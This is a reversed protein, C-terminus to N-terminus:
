PVHFTAIQLSIKTKRRTRTSPMKTKTIWFEGLEWETNTHDRSLRRRRCHCVNVTQGKDVQKNGLSMIMIFTRIQLYIFIFTCVYPANEASPQSATRSPYQPSNNFTQYKRALSQSSPFHVFTPYDPKYYFFYFFIHAISMCDSGNSVATSSHPHTQALIFRSVFQHIM